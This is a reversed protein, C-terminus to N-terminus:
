RAPYTGSYTWSWSIGHENAVSLIRGASNYTEVQDNEGHVVFTSSNVVIRSVPNAKDEYFVGDSGKKYKITRGDPRWAYIVTNSGISCSGGGPRPFCSNLSTNGFTLFYDFNSIWHKGFLGAGQWYHNYTRGLYLGMEGSSFFDAEPEIKNGNSPLIPNGVQAECEEPIGADQGGVAVSATGIFGPPTRTNSGHGSYGRFLWSFDTTDVAYGTVK